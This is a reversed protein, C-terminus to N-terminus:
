NKAIGYTQLSILKNFLALFTPPNPRQLVEEKM